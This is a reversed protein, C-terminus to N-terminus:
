HNIFPKPRQANLSTVQWCGNRQGKSAMSCFALARTAPIEVCGSSHCAILMEVNSGCQMEKSPSTLAPLLIHLGVILPSYWELVSCQVVPYVHPTHEAELM